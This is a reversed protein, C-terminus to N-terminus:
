FILLTLPLILKAQQSLLDSKKPNLTWTDKNGADISQRGMKYINM